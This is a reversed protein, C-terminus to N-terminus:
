LNIEGHMAFSYREAEISMRKPGSHTASVEMHTDVTSSEKPFCRAAAATRMCDSMNSPEAAALLPVPSCAISFDLAGLERSVSCYLLVLINSVQSILDIKGGTSLWVRDGCGRVNARTVGIMM